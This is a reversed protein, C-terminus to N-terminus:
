MEKEKQKKLKRRMGWSTRIILGDFIMYMSPLLLLVLAMSVLAGRALLLCLSSILDVDSYIGVGITAAFFGLASTLISPMSTALAVRASEAKDLGALREKQYRTTMLIAYDVTAGLQITGIVVSAIFPLTVGTYFSLSMNIYIALEIVLVLIVPLSISQLSILILVFIAFISVLSVVQFDHDTIEILDKTCPAEGILMGDPCYKKLIENLESVQANVEDSAVRYESSILMLQWDGGSLKSTMEEPLFDEPISSPILSATGLAFGVGEVEQMEKLMAKAEKNDMDRPALVMMITNMDYGEELEQNAQVSPLYDPLSSDLNYYVNINQYGIVAPIWFLMLVVFFVKYHKVVFGAIKKGNINLPKHSTKEILRDFSLMMAPLVTITCLVGLVVGKAMVVGLDMGLTFSMFCLAIFGAITTLSSASVSVITQSIANAMADTKDTYKKKQEKYSDWLFISYDMTVALQLVATLSMTIFSIEGQIFNTGLNYIISIGINLLFIMPAMWSDMTMALVIASLVVAILVYWFLEQETMNKTDTVIASMSSLFCQEGAIDRIQEIAEMTSESSTGEDFFIAMLTGNDSHFIDYIEDPLMEQPISDDLITDYWIIEAVHDVQEVKDKLKAADQDSMGNVLFLAYAGKGFDQLLIDQGQMTEIDDPLYYLIDYNIRTNFYSIGAPVLLVVALILILIRFKSIFKGFKVM